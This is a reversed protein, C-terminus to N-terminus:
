WIRPFFRYKVKAMYASYGDLEAMLVREERVARFALLGVFVPTCLVGWWSGLLLATGPFFLCAGTYMPHRVYRYPGTSVVTQGRDRQVRVVGSAYPNELMAYFSIYLSILLVVAGFTKLATPVRSWQFRVADLPMLILWFLTFFAAVAIFAKDWPLEVPFRMREEILDRDYKLLWWTMPIATIFLIGLFVWGATWGITGAPIFLGLAMVLFEISELVIVKTEVTM